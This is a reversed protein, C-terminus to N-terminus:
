PHPNPEGAAIQPCDLSQRPVGALRRRGVHFLALTQDFFCCLVSESQMSAKILCEATFPSVLGALVRSAMASGNFLTKQAPHM